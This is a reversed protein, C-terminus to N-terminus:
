NLDQSDKQMHCEGSYAIELDGIITVVELEAM